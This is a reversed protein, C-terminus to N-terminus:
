ACVDRDVLSARMPHSRDENRKWGVNMGERGICGTSGGGPTKDDCERCFGTLTASVRPLATTSSITTAM